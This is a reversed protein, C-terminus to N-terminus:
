SGLPSQNCESAEEETVTQGNHRYLKEGGFLESLTSEPELLGYVHDGARVDGGHIPVPVM